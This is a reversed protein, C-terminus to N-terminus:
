LNGGAFAYYAQFLFVGAFLIVLAVSSSFELMLAISVIGSFLSFIKLRTTAGIIAFGLLLVILALVLISEM